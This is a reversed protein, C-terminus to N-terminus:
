LRLFHRIRIDQIPSIQEVLEHQLDVTWYFNPFEVANEYGTANWFLLGPFRSSWQPEIQSHTFIMSIFYKLEKIDEIFKM